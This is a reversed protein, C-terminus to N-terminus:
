YYVCQLLIVGGISAMCRLIRGPLVPKRNTFAYSLRTVLFTQNRSILHKGFQFAQKM